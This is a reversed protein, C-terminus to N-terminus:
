VACRLYSPGHLYRCSFEQSYQYLFKALKHSCQPIGEPDSEDQNAAVYAQMARSHSCQPCNGCVVGVPCTKCDKCASQSSAGTTDSYKEYGCDVCTTAGSVNSYKGVQCDICTGAVGNGAKYKGAGCPICPSSDACGGRYLGAPCASFLGGCTFKDAEEQTEFVGMTHGGVHVVQTGDSILAYVLFHNGDGNLNTPASASMCYWTDPALEDWNVSQIDHLFGRTQGQIKFGSRGNNLGQIQGM